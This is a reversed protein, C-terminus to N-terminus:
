MLNHLNITHVFMKQWHSVHIYGRKLLPHLSTVGLCFWVNHYNKGTETELFSLRSLLVVCANIALPELILIEVVETLPLQLFVTSSSFNFCSLKPSLRNFDRSTALFCASRIFLIGPRHRSRKQRFAKTWLSPSPRCLTRTCRPNTNLLQAGGSLELSIPFCMPILIVCTDYVTSTISVLSNLSKNNLAQLFAWLLPMACNDSKEWVASLGQM